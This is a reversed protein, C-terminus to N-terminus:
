EVMSSFRLGSRTGQGSILSSDDMIGIAGRSGNQQRRPQSQYHQRCSCLPSQKPQEPGIINVNRTRVLGLSELLREPLEQVAPPVRTAVAQVHRWRRPLQRPKLFRRSVMREIVGNLTRDKTPRTQTCPRRPPLAIYTTHISGLRSIDM